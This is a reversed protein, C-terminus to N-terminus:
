SQTDTTNHTMINLPGHTQPVAPRPVLEQATPTTPTIPTTRASSASARILVEVMKSHIESIRPTQNNMEGHTKPKAASPEAAHTAQIMPMKNTITFPHVNNCVRRGRAPAVAYSNARTSQGIRLRPLVRRRMATDSFSYCPRACFFSSAEM